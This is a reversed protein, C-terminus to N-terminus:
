SAAVASLIAPIRQIAAANWDRYCGVSARMEALQTPMASLHGVLARQERPELAVWGLGHRQIFALNGEEQGPIYTTAIFPKGLMASEILTNPGAKGVILDAAAMVPAINRTYGIVRVGSVGQFREALRQNTGVALVIQATGAAQLAAVCQAFDASGEAGGQVFITFRDPDLCLGGLIAARPPLDADLFQRRVPWGALHLRDPAFGAALAQAYTERTPALTAAGSQETLWAHHVCEPDAFLAVFPVSRPLREIARAAEYSFFPYTTIILRYHRQRLLKDLASAYLREFLWHLALARSPSDTLTYGAAWLWRAHRSMFRYQTTVARPLPEAITATAYLALLDQLATALSLHGGGTQASLILLGSSSPVTAM